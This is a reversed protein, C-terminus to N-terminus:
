TGYELTYNHSGDEHRDIRIEGTLGRLEGTASGPVVAVKMGHAAGAVHTLVFGGKRGHVSGTVKEVAVYAVGQFEGTDEAPVSVGTMDVVSTGVLDGQFTKTLRTRGLKAGEADDYIQDDWSDIEFTGTAQTTTMPCM